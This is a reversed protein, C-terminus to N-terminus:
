CRADAPSCVTARLQGLRPGPGLSASDGGAWCRAVLEAVRRPTEGSLAPRKGDFLQTNVVLEPMHAFLTM